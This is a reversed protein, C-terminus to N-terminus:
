DTNTKTTAGENVCARAVEQVQAPLAAWREEEVIVRGTEARSVVGGEVLLDVIQRCRGDAGTAPSLRAARPHTLDQELIGTQWLGLGLIALGFTIAAPGVLQPRFFMVLAPLVAVVYLVVAFITAFASSM